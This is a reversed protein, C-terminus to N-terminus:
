WLLRAGVLAKQSSFEVNWHGWPREIMWGLLHAQQSDQHSLQYYPTGIPGLGYQVDAHLIRDGAIMTRKVDFTLGQSRWEPDYTLGLSSGWEEHEAEHTLLSHTEATLTLGHLTMSLGGKTEVGTGVNADGRDKRFNIGLTPSLNIFGINFLRSGEIGGVLSWTDANAAALRGGRQDVTAGSETHTYRIDGSTILNLWDGESQRMLDSSIGMSGMKMSLDTEYKDGSEMELWLDGEGYGVIGWMRTTSTLSYGLYPYMGLLNSGIRNDNFYGEGTSHGIALGLLWDSNQYDSGMFWSDVTGGLKLSDYLSDFETQSNDVWLSLYQDQNGITMDVSMGRFVDELTYEQTSTNLHGPEEGLTFSKDAISLRTGIERDSNARDKVKDTIQDTVIKGFHAIWKEPIPGDNTIVGTKETDGVIVMNVPNFLGVKYTEGADDINDALIEVFIVDEEVYATGEEGTIPNKSSISTFELASITGSEEEYDWGATATIDRTRYDVSLTEGTYLCINKCESRSCVIKRNGCQEVVMTIPFTASIRNGEEPEKTSNGSSMFVMCAAITGIATDDALPVDGTPSSLTLSMTEICRDASDYGDQHTEVTITKTKNRPSFTLTGSTSTFDKKNTGGGSKATNDNTTYEVTVDADYASDLSVVFKLDQNILSVAQADAVSIGVPTAAVDVDKITVKAWVELKKSTDDPDPYETLVSADLLFTRQMKIYVVKEESVQGAVFRLPTSTDHKKVTATKIPLTNGMFLYETDLATTYDPEIQLQVTSNFDIKLENELLIDISRGEDVEYSALYVDKSHTTETETYSIETKESIDEGFTLYTWDNDLIDAQSVSNVRLGAPMGPAEHLSIFFYERQREILKDDTIPIDITFEKICAPFEAYIPKGIWKTGRRSIEVNKDIYKADSANASASSYKSGSFSMRAHVPFNILCGVDANASEMVVDVQLNGRGEQKEYLTDKLKMEVVDNDRITVRIDSFDVKVNTNQTVLNARLYFNEDKEVEFNGNIITIPIEISKTGEEITVRGAATRYDRGAIANFVAKEANGDRTEYSLTLDQPANIKRLAGVGNQRRYVSFTVTVTSHGETTYIPNREARICYEWCLDFNTRVTIEKWPSHRNELATRIRVGYVANHHIAEIVHQTTAKNNIEVSNASTYSDTGRKWQIQFSDAHSHIDWSLFLKGREPTAKLNSVSDLTVVQTPAIPIGSFERSPPSEDGESNKSTIKIFYETGGVLNEIVIESETVEITRDSHDTQSGTRWQVIYKSAGRAHPWDIALFNIGPTIEITGVKLLVCKEDVIVDEMDEEDSYIVSCSEYEGSGPKSVSRPLVDLISTSGKIVTGEKVAVQAYVPCNSDLGRLTHIRQTGKKIVNWPCSGKECWKHNGELINGREDRNWIRGITCDAYPLQKWRLEYTTQPSPTAGSWDWSARAEGANDTKTFGFLLEGPADNDIITVTTRDEVILVRQNVGPLKEIVLDFQEDEEAVDDDKIGIEPFPICSGHVTNSPIWLEKSKFNEYDEGITATSRRPSISYRSLFGTSGGPSNRAVIEEYSHIRGNDEGYVEVRICGTVAKGETVQRVTEDWKIVFRDSKEIRGIKWEESVSIFEPLEGNLWSLGLRIRFDEYKEVINDQVIPLNYQISSQGAPFIIVDGRPRVDQFITNQLDRPQYEVIAEVSEYELKLKVTEPLPHPDDGKKVVITLFNSDLTDEAVRTIDDQISIIIPSDSTAHAAGYVVLLMFGLFISPLNSKM